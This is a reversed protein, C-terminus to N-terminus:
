APQGAGARLRATAEPHLVLTGPDIVVGYVERARALSIKGERVDVAVREPDREFAPGYGGGGAQVLTYVEGKRFVRLFKAPLDPRGDILNRTKSGPEGGALAWPGFKTRDSRVQLTAEEGLINGPWTCRM